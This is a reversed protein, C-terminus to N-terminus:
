VVNQTIFYPKPHRHDDPLQPLATNLPQSSIEPIKNHYQGRLAASPPPPKTTAGRSDLSPLQPPSGGHARTGGHMSGQECTSILWPALCRASLSSWKTLFGCNTIPSLFLFAQELASLFGMEFLAKKTSGHTYYATWSSVVQCRSPVLYLKLADLSQTYIHSFNINIIVNGHITKFFGIFCDCNKHDFSDAVLKPM